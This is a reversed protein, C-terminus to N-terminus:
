NSRSSWVVIARKPKVFNASAHFLRRNFAMLSGKNWKLVKKISLYKQDVDHCHGCYQKWEDDSVHESLEINKDKYESFNNYEGQQDFVVTHYEGQVLPIIITYMPDHTKPDSIPKQNKQVLYDGHIDYPKLMDAVQMGDIRNNNFLEISALKSKILQGLATSEDFWQQRASETGKFVGNPDIFSEIKTTNNEIVGYDDDTLFNDIEFYDKM